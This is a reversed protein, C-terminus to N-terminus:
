EEDTLAPPRQRAHRIDLIEVTDGVVRYTL